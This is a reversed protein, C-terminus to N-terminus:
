SVELDGIGVAIGNRNLSGSTDPNVTIERGPRGIEQATDVFCIM